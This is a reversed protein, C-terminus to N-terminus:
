KANDVVSDSSLAKINQSNAGGLQPLQDVTLAQKQRNSDATYPSAWGFQRNLVAIVGVPNKSGTVLKDSLSEERYKALKKYIDSAVSSLKNGDRWTYIISDPIGTLTTYGIVSVEKDYRMCLDYIYINLVDMCKDYDYSNCNSPIKNSNLNYNVTSKLVGGKFVNKYIFYLASNWVAQSEKKMDEIGNEECFISLQAMIENDYIEISQQNAAM